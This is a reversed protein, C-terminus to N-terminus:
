ITGVGKERIMRIDDHPHYSEYEGKVIGDAKSVCYPCEIIMRSKGLQKINIIQYQSLDYYVAVVQYKFSFRRAM